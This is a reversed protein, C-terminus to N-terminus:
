KPRPRCVMTTVAQDCRGVLWGVELALCRHRVGRSRATTRQSALAGLRASAAAPRGDMFSQRIASQRRQSTLLSGSSLCGSQSNASRWTASSPALSAGFRSLRPSAQAVSLFAMAHM